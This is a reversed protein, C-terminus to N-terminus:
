NVTHFLIIHIAGHYPLCNHCAEQYGDHADRQQYTSEQYGVAYCSSMGSLSADHKDSRRILFLVSCSTHRSTSDHSMGSLDIGVQIDFDVTSAESSTTNQKM